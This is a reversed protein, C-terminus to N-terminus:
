RAVFARSGGLRWVHRSFHDRVSGAWRDEQTDNTMLASPVDRRAFVAARAPHVIALRCEDAM